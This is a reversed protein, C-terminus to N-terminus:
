GGEEIPNTAGALADHLEEAFSTALKPRTTEFAIPATWRRRPRAVAEGICPEVKETAKRYFRDGWAM